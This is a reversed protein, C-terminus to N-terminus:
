GSWRRGAGVILGSKMRTARLKQPQTQPVVPARSATGNSMMMFVTNSAEPWGSM